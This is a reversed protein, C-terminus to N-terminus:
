ALCLLNGIIPTLYKHYAQQVIVVLDGRAHDQGFSLWVDGNEGSNTALFDFDFDFVLGFANDYNFKCGPLNLRIAAALCSGLM